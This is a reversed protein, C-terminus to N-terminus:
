RPTGGGTGGGGGFLNSIWSQIMSGFGGQAPTAAPAAPAGRAGQGTAPTAGSSPSPTAGGQTPMAAPAGGTQPANGGGRSPAQAPPRTSPMSPQEGGSQQPQQGPPTPQAPGSPPAVGSGDQGPEKNPVALDLVGGAIGGLSAPVQYAMDVMKNGITNAYQVTPMAIWSSTQDVYDDANDGKGFTKTDSLWKMIEDPITDIMKFCGTAIMYVMIVYMITFFFQDVKPRFYLLNAPDDLSQTVPDYGMLNNTILGWSLNLIYASAAFASMAGVLAFVTIIPRLFIELLLFYGQSSAKSPLGAGEM